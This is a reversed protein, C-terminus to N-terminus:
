VRTAMLVIRCTWLGSSSSSRPAGWPSPGPAHGTWLELHRIYEAAEAGAHRAALAPCRLRAWRRTMVATSIHRVAGSPPWTSCHSSQAWVRM